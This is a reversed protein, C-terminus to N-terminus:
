PLTGVDPTGATTLHGFIYEAVMVVQGLDTIGLRVLAHHRFGSTVTVLEDINGFYPVLM